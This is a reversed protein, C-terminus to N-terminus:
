CGKRFGKGALERLLLDALDGRMTIRGVAVLDAEGGALDRFDIVGPIDGLAEFNACDDGGRRARLDEATGGSRTIHDQENAAAGAAITDASGGARGLFVRIRRKFVRGLDLLAIGRGLAFDM